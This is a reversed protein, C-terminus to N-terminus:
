ETTFLEISKQPASVKLYFQMFYLVTKWLSWKAFCLFLPWLFDTYERFDVQSKKKKGGHFIRKSRVIMSSLRFNPLIAKGPSSTVAATGHPQRSFCHAARSLHLLSHPLGSSLTLSKKTDRSSVPSIRAASIQRVPSKTAADSCLVFAFSTIFCISLFPLLMNGPQPPM